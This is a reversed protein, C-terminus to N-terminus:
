PWETFEHGYISECIVLLVRPSFRLTVVGYISKKRQCDKLNVGYICDVWTSVWFALFVQSWLNMKVLTHFEMWVMVLWLDEQKHMENKQLIINQFRWNKVHLSFLDDTEDPYCESNQNPKSIGTDHAGGARRTCKVLSSPIRNTEHYPSTTSEDVM